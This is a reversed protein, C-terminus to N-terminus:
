LVERKLLQELWDAFIQLWRSLHQRHPYLLTMTMPVARHDPMLEVLEGGKLHAKV